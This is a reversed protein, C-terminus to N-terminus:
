IRLKSKALIHINIIALCYINKLLDHYVLYIVLSSIAFSNFFNWFLWNTMNNTEPRYTPDRGILSRFLEQFCLFRSDTRFFSFSFCANIPSSVPRHSLFLSSIFNENNFQEDIFIYIDNVIADIESMIIWSFLCLLWWSYMCNRPHYERTEDDGNRLLIHWYVRM